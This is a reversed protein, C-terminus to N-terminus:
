RRGAPTPARCTTTSTRGRDRRRSQPNEWPYSLLTVDAQKVADGPYGAYEPHIGTQADFLIRLGDRSGPGAPTRGAPRLM